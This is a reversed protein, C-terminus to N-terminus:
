SIKRYKKVLVQKLLSIQLPTLDAVMEDVGDEQKELYRDRNMVAKELEDM